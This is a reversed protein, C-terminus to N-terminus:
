RQCIHDFEMAIQWLPNNDITGDVYPFECSGAVGTGPFRNGEEPGGFASCVRPVCMYNLCM